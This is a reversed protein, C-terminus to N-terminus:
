ASPFLTKKSSQLRSLLQWAPQESVFWNSNHPDILRRETAVCITVALRTCVLPLLVQRELSTLPRLSEYGSIVQGAAAWPDEQEMMQYALCIALDCVAPNHCADGFDLLGVVREGNVRINEPNPDGHIFQWPLRGLVPSVSNAMQAFAWDLIARREPEEVLLTKDRHQGADTLDWRHRRHAAPHDFGAMALDFRALAEGVQFRTRDSIDNIESLDIGGIFSMLRLRKSFNLSIKIRTEYHGNQNELIDPVQLGAACLRAHQLALREMEVVEPPLEQGAIKAVYQMGSRTRVLYNLNEGPLRTLSGDIGYQDLIARRVIEGTRALSPTAPM